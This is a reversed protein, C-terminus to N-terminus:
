AKNLLFTQQLQKPFPLLIKNFDFSQNLFFHIEFFLVVIFSNLRKWGSEALIEFIYWIEGALFVGKDWLGARLVYILVFFFLGNWIERFLDVGFAWAISILCYFNARFLQFISCMCYRKWFLLGQLGHRWAFGCYDLIILWGQPLRIFKVRSASPKSRVGLLLLHLPQTHDLLFHVQGPFAKLSPKLCCFVGFVTERRM